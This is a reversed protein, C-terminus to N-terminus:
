PKTAIKNYTENIDEFSIKLSKFKDSKKVAIINIKNNGIIIVM